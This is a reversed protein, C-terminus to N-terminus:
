VTISQALDEILHVRVEEASHEVVPKRKPLLPVRRTKQYELGRDGFYRKSEFSWSELCIPWNAMSQLYEQLQGDVEPGFSPLEELGQIFRNSLENYYDSVWAIAGDLDLNLERMVVTLLNYQDNDTAQERNYSLVDSIAIIMDIICTQLEVIHPHYFAEDPIRLHMESVSFSSRGGVNERRIRGFEELTRTTGSFRDEAQLIVSNLYDILSDVLHTFAEPTATKLARETFQRTMEGIIIEGTPRPKHPHHLADTVIEVINRVAAPSEVDTVEDIIFFVNMLDMGTRLHERSADPYALAALRGFDCKEFARQSEPELFEFSRLWANSEAAVEEYLPHMRRPWPWNSTFDPIHLYQQPTRSSDTMTGKIM